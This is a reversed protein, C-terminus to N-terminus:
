SKSRRDRVKADGETEIKIEEKRLTEDVHKTDQVRRKGVSVEETAVTEKQVNVEEDRVPIRVEQGAKLSSASVEKGSAPRREIVVEEHSVPVDLTKHETHVEKRIKVEGTQVPTKSVRLKEEHAQVTSGAAMETACAASQQEHMSGKNSSDYAGFQRLIRMADERRAGATVTVITRGAKVEGEYFEAEEKSLGMGILAGALGAAAAGAAASSLLVALTGGAIAPGIAPLIGALIGLGWLAGIGAGAAVGAIAGEGTYDGDDDDGGGIDDGDAHRKASAVGIQDETFGAEKLAHTAKRAQEHDSFVGVITGQARTAM